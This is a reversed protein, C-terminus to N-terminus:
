NDESNEFNYKIVHKFYKLLIESFEPMSAAVMPDTVGDLREENAAANLDSVLPAMFGLKEIREKERTRNRMIRQTELSFIMDESSTDALSKVLISPRSLESSTGDVEDSVASTSPLGLDEDTMTNNKRVTNEKNRNHEM